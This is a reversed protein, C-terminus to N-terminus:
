AVGPALKQLRTRLNAIESAVQASHERSLDELAVLDQRIATLGPAEKIEGFGARRFETVMDLSLGTDKAIRQDSWGAAFKGGDPDFHQSLLAFMQAQAKMAAPTPKSAVTMKEKSQAARCSVCLHPDIAWGAQKFKHDIQDPPMLQRLKREGVRDCRSCQLRATLSGGGIGPASVITRGRLGLKYPHGRQM